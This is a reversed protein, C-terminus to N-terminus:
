SQILSKIMQYLWLHKKSKRNKKHIYACLPFTTLEEFNTVKIARLGEGYHQVFNELIPAILDSKLVVERIGIASTSRHVVNIKLGKKAVVQEILSKHFTNFFPMEVLAFDYELLEEITATEKKFPHDERVVAVFSVEGLHLEYIDKTTSSFQFQVAIDVQDAKMMASTETTMNHSAFTVNPCLESIRSFIMPSLWPMIQQGIDITITDDLGSPEFEGHTNLANSLQTLAPSIASFLSDAFPTTDFGKPTKVFLEDKFHDRLKNINQSVAPPSIFLLESSKKLNRKQYVISFLKLLNLDLNKFKDDSM